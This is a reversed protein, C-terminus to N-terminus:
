EASETAAGEVNETEAKAPTKEVKASTAAWITHPRGRAKDPQPKLGVQEILGEARWQAVRKVATLRSIKMEPKKSAKALSEFQKILGAVTFPKKPININRPKRGRVKPTENVVTATKNKAM